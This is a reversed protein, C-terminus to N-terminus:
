YNCAPLWTVDNDDSCVLEDSAEVIGANVGTSYGSSNGASYGSSFNADARVGAAVLDRKSQALDKRTLTLNKRTQRLNKATNTLATNTTRLKVRSAVLRSNLAANRGELAQHQEKLDSIQSTKGHYVAYAGVCLGLLIITGGVTALVIRWVTRTTPVEV